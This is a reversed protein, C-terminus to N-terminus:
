WTLHAFPLISSVFEGCGPSMGNVAVCGCCTETRTVNYEGYAVRQRGMNGFCDVVEFVVFEPELKLTHRSGCACFPTMDWEKHDFQNKNEKVQEVVQDALKM